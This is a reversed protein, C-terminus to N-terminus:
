DSNPPAKPDPNEHNPTASKPAEAEPPRSGMLTAIGRTEESAELAIKVTMTLPVSLLMGVPGLVWGWFVLSLLVLLPSLGLGHGFFRPEIGNSVGVNIAVYGVACVGGWMPDHQILTLAIGPLAAIFSGINPVYNFLFALVGLLVPYDVGLLLLWGTVLGGTLLSMWTKLVMYRRIDDIVRLFQEARGGEMGPLARFKAPMLAAELLIFIVVILVIFGQTMLVSVNRLINTVLDMAVDPGFATMVTQRSLTVGHTEVWDLLGRLQGRLQENYEPLKQTLDGLSQGLVGVALVSASALGVAMFLLALPAAVGRARLWFFAPTVLMAIFVALLFPVVITSAAKLGAIVVVAALSVMLRSMPGLGTGGPEHRNEAM